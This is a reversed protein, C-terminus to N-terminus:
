SLRRSLRGPAAGRDGSRVARPSPATSRAGPVTSRRRAQSFKKRTRSTTATAHRHPLQAAAHVAHAQDHLGCAGEATGLSFRGKTKGGRRVHLYVREGPRFGFVRFRVKKRPKATSPSRSRSAAGVEVPSRRAIRARRRRRRDAPVDTPKRGAAAPPPCTRTSRLQRLARRRRGPRVGLSRQRRGQLHPLAGPAFGEAIVPFRRPGRSSGCARSAPRRGDRGPRGPRPRPGRAAPALAPFLRSKM